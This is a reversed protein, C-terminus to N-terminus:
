SAHKLHKHEKWGYVELLQKWLNTRGEWQLVTGILLDLPQSFLPVKVKQVHIKWRQQKAHPVVKHMDDMEQRMSKMQKELTKIHKSSDELDKRVTDAQELQQELQGSDSLHMCVCLSSWSCTWHNLKQVTEVRYLVEELLENNWLGGLRHWQAKGTQFSDYFAVGRYSFFPHYCSVSTLTWPTGLGDHTRFTTNARYSFKYFLLCVGTTLLLSATKTWIYAIITFLSYHIVYNQSINFFTDCLRGGGLCVCM